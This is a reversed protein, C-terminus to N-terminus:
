IISDAFCDSTFHVNCVFSTKRDKPNERRMKQLWVLRLDKIRCGIFPFIQEKRKEGGMPADLCWVILCKLAKMVLIITNNKYYVCFLVWTVDFMAWRQNEHMRQYFLYLWKRERSYATCNYSYRTLVRRHLRIGRQLKVVPVTKLIILTWIVTGRWYYYTAKNLCM